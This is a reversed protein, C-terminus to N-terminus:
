FYKQNLKIKTSFKSTKKSDNKSYDPSDISLLRSIQDVVFSIFNNKVVFSYTHLLYNCLTFNKSVSEFNVKLEGSDESAESSFSSFDCYMHLQNFMYKYFEFDENVKNLLSLIAYLLNFFSILEIILTDLKKYSVVREYSSTDKDLIITFDSLFNFSSRSLSAIKNSTVQKKNSIILGTDVTLYWRQVLIDIYMSM